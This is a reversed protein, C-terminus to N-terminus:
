NFQAIKVNLFLSPYFVKCYMKLISLNGTTTDTWYNQLQRSFLLDNKSMAFPASTGFWDLTFIFKM